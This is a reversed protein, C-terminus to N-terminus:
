LYYAEAQSMESQRYAGRVDGGLGVPSFKCSFTMGWDVPQFCLLNDFGVREVRVAFDSQNM